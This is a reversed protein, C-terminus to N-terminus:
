RSGAHRVDVVAQFAGPEQFSTGAAAKASCAATMTPSMTPHRMIKDSFRYGSKPIM